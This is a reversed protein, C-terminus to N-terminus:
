TLVDNRQEFVANNKAFALRGFTVFCVLLICFFALLPKPLLEHSFIYVFFVEFFFPNLESSYKPLFVFTFFNNHRDILIELEDM